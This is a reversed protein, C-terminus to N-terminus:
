EMKETDDSWIEIKNGDLDYFSFSLGFYDIIDEVKVQNEILRERAGKIDDVVFGYASKRQM